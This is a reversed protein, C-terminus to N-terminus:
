RQRLPTLAFDAVAEVMQTTQPPPRDPPMPNPANFTHTAGAIVTLQTASPAARSLVHACDIPVSVDAEGHILLVSCSLSGIARVPDLRDPDAEIEDLWAKGLRLSQGTRSSPSELYGQARLTRRQEDDLFCASHPAAAAVIRDPRNTGGRSATLLVTVGGRSHGFWTMTLGVADGPLVGDRVAAAVRDLDTMQKGWTDQEFLDPREFTEVNNTMGSHSFNFRHAILGRRAAVDALHPSFGYDKYGKFGHCIVLVGRPPAEPLHTDGLITQGDAGEISWAERSM